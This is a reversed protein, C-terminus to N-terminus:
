GMPRCMAVMTAAMLVHALHSIREALGPSAGGSGRRVGRYLFWLSMVAFVFSLPVSEIM